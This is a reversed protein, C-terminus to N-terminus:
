RGREQDHPDGEEEMPFAKDDIVTREDDISSAYQSQFIPTRVDDDLTPDKEDDQTDRPGADAPGADPDLALRSFVYTGDSDDTTQENVVIPIVKPASVPEADKYARLSGQFDLASQFREEARKALAKDVIRGLGPPLSPDLELLPRHPKHLIAVMLANLNKATFPREGTLGEYLVVGVSWLDVRGDIRRDGRAQEPAMYFPTGAAVGDGMPQAMTDDIDEARSIGFDLLKPVPRMGDRHSLFINDPKLDRHVVGRQHAAALASLVQLLIDVMDTPAIRHERTIRQALTEGVLRELVLYPSGDDLRGMDYVACINPHGLTGAVRAEHRLRSAAERDQAHQPHLVKVAVLKGISLNEAEYVVGMGGEAIVRSVGYRDGIVRGALSTSLRPPHVSPLAPPAPTAPRTAPLGMGPTLRPVAPAAPIARMAPLGMGPTLRPVAPAAPIAGSRSTTRLSPVSTAPIAGSRSSTKSSADPGQIPQRTVPCV